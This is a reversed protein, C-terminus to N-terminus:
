RAGDPMGVWTDKGRSTVGEGFREGLVESAVRGSTALWERPQHSLALHCCCSVIRSVQQSRLSLVSVPSLSRVYPFNLSKMWLDDILLVM